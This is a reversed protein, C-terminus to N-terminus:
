SRYTRPAGGFAAVTTGVPPHDSTPEPRPEIRRPTPQERGSGLMFPLAGGIVGGAVAGAIVSGIVTASSPGSRTPPAVPAPRHYDPAAFTPAPGSLDPGSHRTVGIPQQVPRREVEQRVHVPEQPPVDRLYSRIRTGGRDSERMGLPHPTMGSPAVPAQSSWGDRRWIEQRSDIDLSPSQELIRIITDAEENGRVEASLVFAGRRIGEGYVHRDEASMHISELGSVQDIIRASGLDLSTGLRQRAAEAEARTDYLATVTRSM